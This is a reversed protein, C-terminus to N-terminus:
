AAMGERERAGCIRCMRVHVCYADLAARQTERRESLSRNPAHASETIRSYLERGVRCLGIM